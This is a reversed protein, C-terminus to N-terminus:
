EWIVHIELDKGNGPMDLVAELEFQRLPQNNSNGYSVKKLVNAHIWTQLEERFM